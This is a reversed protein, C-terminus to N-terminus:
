QVRTIFSDSSVDAVRFLRAAGSRNLGKLTRTVNISYMTVIKLIYGYLISLTAIGPAPGLEKVTLDVSGHLMAIFGILSCLWGAQAFGDGINVLFENANAKILGLALGAIVVFMACLM